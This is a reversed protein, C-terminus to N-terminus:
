VMLYILLAFAIYCSLYIKNLFRTQEHVKSSHEILSKDELVLANVMVGEFFYKCVYEDLELVFVIGLFNFISSMADEQIKVVIATACCGVLLLVFDITFVISYKEMTRWNKENKAIRFLDYSLKFIAAGIGVILVMPYWLYNTYHNEEIAEQGIIKEAVGSLTSSFSKSMNDPIIMSLYFIIFLRIVVMTFSNPSIRRYDTTESIIISYVIIQIGFVALSAINLWTDGKALMIFDNTSEPLPYSVLKYAIPKSYNAPIHVREM